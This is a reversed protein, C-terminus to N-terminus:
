PVIFGNNCFFKTLIVNTTIKVTSPKAKVESNINLRVSFSRSANINIIIDAKKVLTPRKTSIKLLLL